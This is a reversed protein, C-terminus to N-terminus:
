TVIVVVVVVIRLLSSNWKPLLSAIQTSPHRSIHEYEQLWTCTTDIVISKYGAEDYRGM